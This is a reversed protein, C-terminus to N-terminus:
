KEGSEVSVALTQGPLIHDPDAGVTERNATYLARWGGSLELSDAM